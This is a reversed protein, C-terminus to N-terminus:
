INLTQGVYIVNADAIGNKSVLSDVTTGHSSAISSLNDGSQVTYTSTSGSLYIKQGVSIVNPNSIGNRSVLANVTTGFKSAIGSLTDGSQVYYTDETSATGTVKLVQGVQISNPDGIGNIAALNQYTTNFQVAIGSLTDGSNVIYTGQAPTNVHEVVENVPVQTDPVSGTTVNGTFLGTYDTNIDQSYGNWSDAFQWAVANNIGLDTVGYGAVWANPLRNSDLITTWFSKASYVSVTPYGLSKVEDLFALTAGTYDPATNVEADSVMVTDSGLGMAQANKVFFRAENQADGNSTYRAFHYASVKLGAARANNIQNQARPNVYASGDESGETIKVVVGSAGLSKMKNFYDVTDPQFSAVDIFTTEAM